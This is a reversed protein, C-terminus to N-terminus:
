CSDGERRGCEGDRGEEGGVAEAAVKVDMLVAVRKTVGKAAARVAIVRM